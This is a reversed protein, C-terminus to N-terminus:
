APKADSSYSRATKVTLCLVRRSQHLSCLHSILRPVDFSELHASCSKVFELKMFMLAFHALVACRGFFLGSILKPGPLLTNRLQSLLCM